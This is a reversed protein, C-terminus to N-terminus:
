RFSEELDKAYQKISATHGMIYKSVFRFVPNYVEGNERITVMTQGNGSRLTFIWTGGFPLNKDNIETVLKQMPEESVIKLPLRHNRKDVEVWSNDSQMEVSQLRKRWQPYAKIDRLRQWVEKSGADLSLEMSVTHKVPLLYGLIVIILVICIMVGILLLLYKM